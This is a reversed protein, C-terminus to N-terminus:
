RTRLRASRAPRLELPPNGVHMVYDPEVKAVAGLAALRTMLTPVDLSPSDLKYWGARGIQVARPAGAASAAASLDGQTPVASFKVLVRHAM